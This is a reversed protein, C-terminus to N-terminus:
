LSAVVKLVGVCINFACCFLIALTVWLVIVATEYANELPTFRVMNYNSRDFYCRERTGIKSQVVNQSETLTGYSTSWDATTSIANGSVTFNVNLVPQYCSPGCNTTSGGVINCQTTVYEDIAEQAASSLVSMIIAAILVGIFCLGLVIAIGILVKYLTKM